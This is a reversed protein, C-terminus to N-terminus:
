EIALYIDFLNGGAKLPILRSIDIANWRFINVKVMFKLKTIIRKLMSELYCRYSEHLFFFFIIDINFIFIDVVQSVCSYSM